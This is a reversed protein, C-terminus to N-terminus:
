KYDRMIRIEKRLKKITDGSKKRCYMVYENTSNELNLIDKRILDVKKGDTIYKSSLIDKINEMSERYNITKIRIM